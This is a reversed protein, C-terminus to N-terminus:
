HRTLRHCRFSELFYSGMTIICRCTATKHENRVKFKGAEVSSKSNGELKVQVCPACDASHCPSVCLFPLFPPPFLSFKKLDCQMNM